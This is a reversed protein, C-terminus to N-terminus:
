VLHFDHQHVHLQASTVDLLTVTDGHGDPIVAGAATDRTHALIDHISNFVSHDFQLTDRHVNFDAITNTGFDPRFLFTDQGHGATLTDGNGGILVDKGSGAKLTDGGASGDLVFPGKGAKLTTDTGALYTTGRDFVVISLMSTSLDGHGDSVTYKFVDQTVGDSGCRNADRDAHYTYSGDANLTLWGYKGEVAHGVASTRGNVAEVSLQDHIDPDSDNALVGKADTESIVKGRAVGDSDPVASPKDDSGDIAVVLDQTVTDGNHDDIVIPATVTLHEGVGLFDFHSDTMSFSWDIKGTNTNGQEPTIQIAVEFAAIQDPTLTYTHGTADQYTVTEDKTDIMATPRDTLDPDSFAIMGGISDIAHSGTTRPLEHITGTASTHVGDIVPPDNLGNITITETGTSPTGQGDSATFLFALTTSQGLALYEYAGSPDFSFTGDSNFAMDTPASGELAYTISNGVLDFASVAGKLVTNQDTTASGNFAIPGLDQGPNQTETQGQAILESLNTGTFLNAITQLQTPSGAANTIATSAAGQMVLEVGAADSLLQSGPQDTQLVHDLAANGASIVSAVSDAVGNGLSLNETHAVQTILTSLATKDGLNIGAGGLASALASFAAQLSPTFAGGAGALASAIMEVTDYVRAGAVETAAGDAGGGQAAAIPDFTTLNLSSSLGLAALLKQQASPDSALDTLLTTLPTIDISGAPASLQGKFPLGTSTDTGGFAILAGSGGSLAFSGTSDTTTSAEGPDLQGNGNADAFVTAGSIYGKIVKSNGFQITQPVLSTADILPQSPPDYSTPPQLTPYTEGDYYQKVGFLTADSPSVLQVALTAPASGAYNITVKVDNAGGPPGGSDQHNGVITAQYIDGGPVLPTANSVAYQSPDAGAISFYFTIDKDIIPSSGVAAGDIKFDVTAANGQVIPKEVHLIPQAPADQVTLKIPIPLRYFTESKVQTADATPPTITDLFNILTNWFGTNQGNPGNGNNGVVICGNSDGPNNGIHIQIATRSLGFWSQAKYDSLELAAGDGAHADLRYILDYTGNPVPMLQDFACEVKSALGPIPQGDDTVSLTGYGEDASTEAFTINIADLPLKPSSGGASGSQVFQVNTLTDLQSGASAYVAQGGQYTFYVGGLSLNQNSYVGGALPNQPASHTFTVGSAFNVGTFGVTTANTLPNAPSTAASSVLQNSGSGITINAGSGVNITNNGNGVTITDNGNGAQIIYSGNGGTVSTTDGAKDGLVFTKTLDFSKTTDAIPVAADGPNANPLTITDGGGLANYLDAGGLVAAQQGPDLSNFNVTETGTTFLTAAAPGLDIWINAPYYITQTVADPSTGGTRNVVLQASVDPAPNSNPNVGDPLIATGSLAGLTALKEYVHNGDPAAPVEDVMNPFDEWGINPPIHNNVSSLDFSTSVSQANGSLTWTTYFPYGTNSKVVGNVAYSQWVTAGQGPTLTPEGSQFAAGGGSEYLSVLYTQGDITVLSNAKDDIATTPNPVTFTVDILNVSFQAWLESM